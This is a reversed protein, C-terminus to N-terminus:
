FRIGLTSILLGEFHKRKSLAEYNPSYKYLLGESSEWLHRYAVDFYLGDFFMGFGTSAYYRKGIKEYLESSYPSTRFGGGVRFVFPLFLFEAGARIDHVPRTNQQLLDNEKSFDAVNAFRAFPTYSFAYDASISAHTGLIVALSGITKFPQYMTVKNLGKPTEYSTFPPPNKFQAEAKVRFSSELGMVTPTHFALGIRLFDTARVIAGVKFNIGLGEDKSLQSLTFASLSGIGSPDSISRETHKLNQTYYLEQIGLTFGLFLRNSINLATSLDVEGLHGDTDAVQQQEVIEGDELVARFHHFPDNPKWPKGSTNVPELLYAKRAAVLFWNYASLVDNNDFTSPTMGLDNAEQTLADLFSTTNSAQATYVNRYCALQNYAIGFNLSILGSEVDRDSSLALVLGLGGLEASLAPSTLTQNRYTERGLNLGLNLTGAMEHSRYFGLGGPNTALTSFDSGIAGMAHGFGVARATSTPLHQSYLLIENLGQARLSIPIQIAALLLLPLALYKHLKM